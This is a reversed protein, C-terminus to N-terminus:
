AQPVRDLRFAFGNGCGPYWHSKPKESFPLYARGTKVSFKQLEDTVHSNDSVIVSQPSLKLEIVQLEQSEYESRHDSDHIFLDIPLSISDLQTLSTGVMIKGYNPYLEKFLFGAEPNIDIGIYTGLIGEEKNKRLGESLVCAGLGKDLGTEVVVRPKLARVLAYWGIRRGFRIESDSIPSQDSEKILNSIQSKLKQNFLIEDFYGQIEKAPKQTVIALISALDKESQSTLEYTFNTNERSRFLWGPITKVSPWVYQVALYFRYPIWRLRLLLEIGPSM